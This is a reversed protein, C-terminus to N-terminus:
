TFSRIRHLATRNTSLVFWAIHTAEAFSAGCLVAGYAFLVGHCLKPSMQIAGCPYLDLMKNGSYDGTVDCTGEPTDYLQSTM